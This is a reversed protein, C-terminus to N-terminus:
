LVIDLTDNQLASPDRSADWVRSEYAEADGTLQVDQEADADSFREGHRGFQECSLAASDEM